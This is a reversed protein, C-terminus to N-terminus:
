PTSNFDFGFVRYEKAGWTDKPIFRIKLVNQKIEHFVLREHNEEYEQKLVNGDGTAVVLEYEKILTQPLKYKEQKLPYNCPMNHYDRNLDSDFILRVQEVYVPKEFCYELYM